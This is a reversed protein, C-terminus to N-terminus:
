SGYYSMDCSGEIYGLRHIEQAFAILQEKTSSCCEIEDYDDVLVELYEKALKIVEEDLIM